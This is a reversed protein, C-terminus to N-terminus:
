GNLSQKLEAEARDKKEVNGLYLSFGFCFYNKAYESQAYKNHEYKIIEIYGM